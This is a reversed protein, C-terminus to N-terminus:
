KRQRLFLTKTEIKALGDSITFDLRTITNNSVANTIATYYYWGYPSSFSTNDAPTGTSSFAYAGPNSRSVTVAATIPKWTIRFTKKQGAAYGFDLTSIEEWASEDVIELGFGYTSSQVVEIRYQLKGSRIHIYATRDAASTNEEVFVFVNPAASPPSYLSLWDATNPMGSQDTIKEVTWGNPASSVIALRNSATGNKYLDATLLLRDTSVGLMYNGDFVVHNMGKETWNLPITEMNVPLSALAEEPTPYGNSSVSVIKILYYNNRLLPLYVKQGNEMGAFDIKYYTVAGGQYSGGVILCANASQNAASGAPAEYAYIMRRGGDATLGDSADFVLPTSVPAYGGPASPQTPNVARNGAGWNGMDPVLAGQSSYNCLRVSALSFNTQVSPAIELDIRAVMRIMEVTNNNGFGTESDIKLREIQGWMPINDRNWKGPNTEVLAKLVSEKADGVSISLQNLMDQANALLVVDYEGTPLTVNFNNQSPSLTINKTAGFYYTM